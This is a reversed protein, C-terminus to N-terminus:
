VWSAPSRRESWLRSAEQKLNSWEALPAKRLTMLALAATHVVTNIPAEDRAQGLWIAKWYEFSSLEIPRGLTDAKSAPVLIESPAGAISRLIATSRLPTMEAVDRNTCTVSLNEWGLLGAAERPLDKHASRFAGLMLTRANLPNILHVAQNLPSRMEFLRYLGILATLQDSLTPFPLFAIGQRSIAAKAKEIGDAVPIGLFGAATGLGEGETVLGTGGHVLVRVGAHSVLKAAMMFWPQLPIKPSLYAPWDLQLQDGPEASVGLHERLALAMGALEPATAHRFQLVALLAGVQIPDARGALIHGFAEEAEDMTLPRSRGAGMGITAIAKALRQRPEACLGIANLKAAFQKPTPGGIDIVPALSLSPAASVPLRNTGRAAKKPTDSEHAQLLDSAEEVLARIRLRLQEAFVTPVMGRGTKRLIPDGYIERIQKLLRSMAPAGLGMREAAQGVSQEVLLADLAVLLRLRSLPSAEGSTPRETQNETEARRKDGATSVTRGIPM